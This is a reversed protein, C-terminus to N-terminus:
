LVNNTYGLYILTLTVASAILSALLILRSFVPVIRDILLYNYLCLALGIALLLPGPNLVALQYITDVASVIQHSITLM